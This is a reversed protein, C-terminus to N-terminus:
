IRQEMTREIHMAILDGYNPYESRIVDNTYYKKEVLVGRNHIQDLILYICKKYHIIGAQQHIYAKILKKCNVPLNYLDRTPDKDKYNLMANIQAEANEEKRINLARKKAIALAARDALTFSM